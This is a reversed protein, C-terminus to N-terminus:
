KSKKSKLFRHALGEKTTQPSRAIAFAESPVDKTVTSGAAVFSRDGINIPAVVQVDSGIFVNKGIKTKHKDRGDYNCTIFGCGINSEEGIEADGVYSLHSVKVGAHLHSKKIEVFNGIKSGEGIDCEPRLRAFPGVHANKRIIARELHSYALIQAGEEVTCDKLIAGSEILVNKQIKTKGFIKVGPHLIVGSEIQVDQDVWTSSADFCMVGNLMLQSLKRQRLARTVAELQELTNVGLFESEDEFKLALVESDQSFVDTLYFEGSKNKNNIQSLKKLLYDTKILYFGSNVEKIKREEESADKEEIIKFGKNAKSIRGYGKPHAAEFTAAVALLNPKNQFESWLRFFTESTILPTDACVIFTYDFKENRPCESFYSRLADGTGNQEKQWAFNLLNGFSQKLSEEVEQKKHGVVATMLYEVNAELAFKRAASVVHDVIPKGIAPCLAKPLDIKLRTGKGAALIAIGITAM